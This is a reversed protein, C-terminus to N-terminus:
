APSSPSSPITTGTPGTAATISRRSNQCGGLAYSRIYHVNEGLILTTVGSNYFAWEDVWGSVAVRGDTFGTGQFAGRGVSVAKAIKDGHTGALGCEGVSTINPSATVSAGTGFFAYDGAKTVSGAMTVSGVDMRFFAYNGINTVGDEVTVSSITLGLWPPSNTWAYEPEDDFDDYRNRYDYMPGTGYITLAGDEIRWFVQDGCKGIGCACLGGSFDHDEQEALVTGCNACTKKHTLGDGNDACATGSTHDCDSKWTVSTSIDRMGSETWGANAPYIATVGGTQVCIDNDPASPMGGTFTITRLASCQQFVSGGLTRLGSGFTIDTLGKCFAFAKDGVERVSDPVTV